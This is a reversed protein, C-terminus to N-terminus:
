ATRTYSEADTSEISVVHSQLNLNTIMLSACAHVCMASRSHDPKFNLRHSITLWKVVIIKIYYGPTNVCKVQKITDYAM